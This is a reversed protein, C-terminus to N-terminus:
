EEVKQLIGMADRKYATGCPSKLLPIIEPEYNALKNLTYAGGNKPNNMYGSSETGSLFRWGSDYDNVPEERYMYGIKMGDVIIMDTAFCGDAENWDTLLLKLDRDKIKSNKIIPM